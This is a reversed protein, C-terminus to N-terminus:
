TAAVLQKEDAPAKQIAAVTDRIAKHYGAVPLANQGEIQIPPRGSRRAPLPIVLVNKPGFELRQVPPNIGPVGGERVSRLMDVYYRENYPLRTEENQLDAYAAVWRDDAAARAATLRKIDDQLTAVLGQVRIGEGAPPTHWPIQNTVLGVAWAVFVLSLVLNLFVLWKGLKTM